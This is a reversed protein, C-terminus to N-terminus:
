FDVARLFLPIAISSITLWVTTAIAIIKVLQLKLDEVKQNQKNINKKLELQSSELMEQRTIVNQYQSAIAINIGNLLANSERAIVKLETIDDEMGQLRYDKDNVKNAM